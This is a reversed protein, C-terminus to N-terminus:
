KFRQKQQGIGKNKHRAKLVTAAWEGMKGKKRRAEVSAMGGRKGMERMVKSITKKNM